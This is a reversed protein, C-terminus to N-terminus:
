QSARQAQAGREEERAIERDVWAYWSPEDEAGEPIPYGRYLKAAQEPKDIWYALEAPSIEAWAAHELLSLAHKKTRAMVKEFREREGVWDDIPFHILKAMTHVMVWRIQEESDRHDKYYRAFDLEEIYYLWRMHDHNYIDVRDRVKTAWNAAMGLRARLEHRHLGFRHLWYYSSAPNGFPLWRSPDNVQSLLGLNLIGRMLAKARRKNTRLPQPLDSSVFGAEALLQKQAIYVPHTLDCADGGAEVVYDQAVRGFAARAFALFPEEAIQWQDDTTPVLLKARALGDRAAGRPVYSIHRDQLWRYFTSQPVSLGAYVLRKWAVRKDHPWKPHEIKKGWTLLDALRQGLQNMNIAKNINNPHQEYL